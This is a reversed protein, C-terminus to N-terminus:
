LKTIKYGLMGIPIQSLLEQYTGIVKIKNITTTYM